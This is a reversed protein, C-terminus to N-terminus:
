YSPVLGVLQPAWVLRWAKVPNSWSHPADDCEAARHDHVVAAATAVVWVLLDPPHMPQMPQMPRACWLVEVRGLVLRKQNQAIQRAKQWNLAM